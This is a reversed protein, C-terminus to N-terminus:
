TSQPTQIRRFIVLHTVIVLPVVLTPLTAYPMAQFTQFFTADRVIYLLRAASLFTATIDILAFVNWAFVLARSRRDERRVLMAVFVSLVGSVIDGVGGGIAFSGPLREHSWEWLFAAGFYVRVVHYIVVMRLDLQDVFARFDASWRIGALYLLVQSWILIPIVQRPLTVIIGSASLGIAAIAWLVLAGYFSQFRNSSMSSTNM